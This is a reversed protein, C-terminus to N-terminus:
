LNSAYKMTKMSKPLHLRILFLHRQSRGSTMPKPKGSVIFTQIEKKIVEGIGILERMSQSLAIYESEMTSLTIQTQLKLYIEQPFNTFHSSM